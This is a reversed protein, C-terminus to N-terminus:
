DGVFDQTLIFKERGYSFETINSFIWNHHHMVFCDHLNTHLLDYILSSLSFLSSLVAFGCTFIHSGVDIDEELDELLDLM